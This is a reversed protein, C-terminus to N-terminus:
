PGQEMAMQLFIKSPDKKGRSLRLHGHKSGWQLKWTSACKNGVEVQGPGFRKSVVEYLRDCQVPDSMVVDVMGTGSATASMRVVGELSPCALEPSDQSNSCGAPFAVRMEPWSKELIAPDKILNEVVQYAAPM